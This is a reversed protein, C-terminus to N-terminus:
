DDDRHTRNFATGAASAVADAVRLAEERSVEFSVTVPEGGSARATIEIRVRDGERVAGFEWFGPAPEPM